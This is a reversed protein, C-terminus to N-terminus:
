FVLPRSFSASLSQALVHLRVLYRLGAIESFRMLLAKFVIVDLSVLFTWSRPATATIVVSAITYQKGTALSVHMIWLICVTHLAIQKAVITSYITLRKDARFVANLSITM